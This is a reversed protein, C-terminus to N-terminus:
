EGAMLEEAIRVQREDESYGHDALVQESLVEFISVNGCCKRWSQQERFAQSKNMGVADAYEQMTLLVPRGAADAADRCAAGYRAAFRVARAFNIWGGAAIMEARTPGRRQDPGAAESVARSSGRVVAENKKPQKSM